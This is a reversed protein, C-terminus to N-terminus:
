YESIDTDNKDEEAAKLIKQCIEIKDSEVTLAIKEVVEKYTQLRELIAQIEILEEKSATKGFSVATDTSIFDVLM